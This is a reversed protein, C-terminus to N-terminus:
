PCVAPPHNRPTRDPSHLRDCDLLRTDRAHEGCTKRDVRQECTEPQPRLGPVFRPVTHWRSPFEPVDVPRAVHSGHHACDAMLPIASVIAPLFRPCATSFIQVSSLSDSHVLS